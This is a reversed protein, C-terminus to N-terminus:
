ARGGRKVKFEKLQKEGATYVSANQEFLKYAEQAAPMDDKQVAMAIDRIAELDARARSMKLEFLPLTAAGKKEAKLLQTKLPVLIKDEPLRSWDISYLGETTQMLKQLNEPKWFSARWEDCEEAQRWEQRGRWESKSPGLIQHVPTLRPGSRLQAAYWNRRLIEKQVESMELSAGTIDVLPLAFPVHDIRPLIRGDSARVTIGSDADGPQWMDAVEELVRAKAKLKEGNGLDIAQFGVESRTGRPAIGGTMVDRGLTDLAPVRQLAASM